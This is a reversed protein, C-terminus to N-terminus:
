PSSPPFWRPQPRPAASSPPINRRCRTSPPTTTPTSVTLARRTTTAVGVGYYADYSPAVVLLNAGESSFSAITDQPNVAGVTIVHRDNQFHSLNADTPLEQRNNGSAAVLVTGLGGRGEAAADAYYHAEFQWWIRMEFDDFAVVGGFSMNVVDFDPMHPLAIGLNQLSVTNSFLVPVSTVQSGYAIGTVGIGNNAAAIIGAVCTGHGSATSLYDLGDVQLSTDINAALDPHAVQILSDFVGVHVGAGTYRCGGGGDWVSLHQPRDDRHLDAVPQYVM